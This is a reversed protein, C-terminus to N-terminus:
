IREIKSEYCINGMFFGQFKISVGPKLYTIMFNNTLIVHKERLLVKM